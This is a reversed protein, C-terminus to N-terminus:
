HKSRSEFLMWSKSMSSIMGMAISSTSCGIAFGRRFKKARFNVTGIEIWSNSYVVMRMAAVWNRESGQQNAAFGNGFLMPRVNEFCRELKPRESENLAVVTMTM